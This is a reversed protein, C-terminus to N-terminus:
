NLGYIHRHEKNWQRSWWNQGQYLRGNLLSMQTLERYAPDHRATFM